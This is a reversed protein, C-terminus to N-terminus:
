GRLFMLLNEARKYTRRTVVIRRNSSSERVLGKCRFLRSCNVRYGKKALASLDVAATKAEDDVEIEDILGGIKGEILAAIFMLLSNSEKSEVVTRKLYLEGVLRCAPTWGLLMDRVNAMGLLRTSINGIATMVFGSLNPIPELERPPATMDPIVFCDEYHARMLASHLQTSCLINSHGDEELEAESVEYPMQHEKWRERDKGLPTKLDLLKVIEKMRVSLLGPVSGYASLVPKPEKGMSPAVVNWVLPVLLSMLVGDKDMEPLNSKSPGNWTKAPMDPALEVIDCPTWSSGVLRGRPLHYTGTNKDWHIRNFRVTNPKRFFTAMRVLHRVYKKHLSPVPLERELFARTLKEELKPLDKDTLNFRLRQTGCTAVLQYYVTGEIIVVRDVDLLFDCVLSDEGTRNRVYTQGRKRYFEKDDMCVSDRNMGSLLYSVREAQEPIMPSTIKDLEFVGLNLDNLLAAAKIDDSENVYHTVAQTWALAESKNTDIGLPDFETVVWDFEKAIRIADTSNSFCLVQKVGELWSFNALPSPCMVPVVQIAKNIAKRTCVYIFKKFDDFLTYSHAEPKLGVLGRRDTIQHTRQTHLDTVAAILGPAECEVVALKYPMERDLFGWEAQMAEDMLIMRGKLFTLGPDASWGVWLANAQLIKVAFPPPSEMMKEGKEIWELAELQDARYQLFDEEDAIEIDFELKRGLMVLLEAPDEKFYKSAYEVTDGAFGCGSCVIWAGISTTTIRAQSGCLRCTCYAPLSHAKDTSGMLEMLETVPVKKTLIM